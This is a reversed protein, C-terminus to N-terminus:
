ISNNREMGPMPHCNPNMHYSFVRTNAPGLGSIQDGRQKWTTSGLINRIKNNAM